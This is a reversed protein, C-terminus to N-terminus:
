VQRLHCSAVKAVRQHGQQRDSHLPAGRTEGQGCGKRPLGLQVPRDPSNLQCLCSPMLPGAALSYRGPLVGATQSMRIVGPPM